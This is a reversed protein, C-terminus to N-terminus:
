AAGSERRRRDYFARMVRDARGAQVTQYEAESWGGDREVKAFTVDSCDDPLADIFSRVQPADTFWELGVSYDDLALHIRAEDYKEGDVVRYLERDCALLSADIPFTYRTNGRHLRAFRREPDDSFGVKFYRGARVFYVSM